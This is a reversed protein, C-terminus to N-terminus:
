RPRSPSGSMHVCLIRARRRPWRRGPCVLQQSSSVDGRRGPKALLPSGTGDSPSSFRPAKPRALGLPAPRAPAWSRCQREPACPVPCRAIGASGPCSNEGLRPPPREASFTPSGREGHAALGGRDRHSPTVADRGGKRYICM